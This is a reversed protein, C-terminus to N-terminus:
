VFLCYTEHWVDLDVKRNNKGPQLINRHETPLVMWLHIGFFDRFDRKPLYNETPQQTGLCSVALRVSDDDEPNKKKRFFASQRELAAM